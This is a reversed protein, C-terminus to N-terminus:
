DGHTIMFRVYVRMIKRSMDLILCALLIVLEVLDDWYSALAEGAYWVRFVHVSDGAWVAVGGIRDPLGFGSLPFAAGALLTELPLRRWFM